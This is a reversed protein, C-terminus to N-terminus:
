QVYCLILMFIIMIVFFLIMQLEGKNQMIRKKEDHKLELEKIKASLEAEKIKTEDISHHTYEIKQTGDDIHLKSGCYQCFSFEKDPILEINAGCNPCTLATINM